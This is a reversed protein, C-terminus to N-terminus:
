GLLIWVFLCFIAPAFKHTKVDRNNEYFCSSMSKHREDRKIERMWRQLIVEKSRKVLPVLSAPSCM